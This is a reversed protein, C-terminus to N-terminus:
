RIGRARSDDLAKVAPAYDTLSRSPTWAPWNDTTSVRMGVHYLLRADLVGVSMDADTTTGGGEQRGSSLFVSPIQRLTYAERASRFYRLREPDMDGAAVRFQDAAHDRVLGKLAEFGIGVFKIRKDTGGTANFGAVHIAARTAAKSYVPDELYADLGLLGQPAATVMLFVFGGHPSRERSLARALELVVPAGPPAQNAPDADTLDGGTWNGPPLTSWETAFLVYEQPKGAAPISAIVNASHIVSIESEIRGTAKVPLTVATFNNEDAKSRADDFDLMADSFLRRTADVSIWGEFPLHSTVDGPSGPDVVETASKQLNEWTAETRGDLHVVLVGVAGRNAAEQLKYRRRGFLDGGLTGLLHRQGIM